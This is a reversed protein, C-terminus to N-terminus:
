NWCSRLICKYSLEIRRPTPHPGFTSATGRGCRCLSQSHPWAPSQINPYIEFPVCKEIRLKEARGVCVGLIERNCLHVRLTVPQPGFLGLGLM